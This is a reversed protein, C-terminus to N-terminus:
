PSNGTEERGEDSEAGPSGHDTERVGIEGGGGGGEEECSWRKQRGAGGGEEGGGGKKWPVGGSQGLDRGGM